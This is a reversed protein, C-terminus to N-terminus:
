LFSLSLSFGLLEVLGIACNRFFNRQDRLVKSEEIERLDRSERPDRVERRPSSPQAIDSIGSIM